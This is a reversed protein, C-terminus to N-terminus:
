EDKDSIKQQCGWQDLTKNIDELVFHRAAEKDYGESLLDNYDTHVHRIHTTLGQWARISPPLHRLHGSNAIKEVALFDEMTSLPIMERLRKKIEKSNGKTQM